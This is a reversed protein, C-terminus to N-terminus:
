TFRVGQAACALFAAALVILNIGVLFVTFEVQKGFERTGAKEFFTHAGLALLGLIGNAILSFGPVRYWKPHELKQFTEGGLFLASLFIMAFFILTWKILAAKRCNGIMSNLSDVFPERLIRFIYQNEQIDAVAAIVACLGAALGIQWTRHALAISATVCLVAYALIFPFDAYQVQRMLDRNRQNHVGLILRVQTADRALEMALVRRRFGGLLGNPNVPQFQSAILQIIMGLLFVLSSLAASATGLDRFIIRM